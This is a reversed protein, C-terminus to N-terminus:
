LKQVNCLPDREHDFPLIGNLFTYSASLYAFYRHKQITFLGKRIKNKPPTKKRKPKIKYINEKIQAWEKQQDNLSFLPGILFFFNFSKSIIEYIEVKKNKLILSDKM